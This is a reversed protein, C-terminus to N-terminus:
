FLGGQQYIEMQVEYFPTADVQTNRSLNEVKGTEFNVRVQDGDKLNLNISEKFLMIIVIKFVLVGM